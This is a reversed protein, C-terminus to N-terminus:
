PTSKLPHAPKHKRATGASRRYLREAEILEAVAPPVLDEIPKGDQVRQRILTSSVASRQATIFELKATIGPLKTELEKLRLDDSPRRLIGIASVQKILDQPNYWVPLDHLSDGGMLYVLAAAPNEERLIRVTDVAYQPGPRNVDVLSIEYLPYPALAAQLMRLRLSLPSIHLGQKHPPDPTIVWLIKSLHLDTMAEAALRLHGNHPPDFTGGFVGFRETLASDRTM